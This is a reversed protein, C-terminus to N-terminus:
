NAVTLTYTCLSISPSMSYTNKVLSATTVRCLHMAGLRLVLVVEGELDEDELEHVEEGGDEVDGEELALLDRM